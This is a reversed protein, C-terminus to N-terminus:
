YILGMNYVLAMHGDSAGRENKVHLDNLQQKSFFM